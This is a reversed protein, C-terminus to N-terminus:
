KSRIYVKRAVGDWHVAYGFAEAVYRAPLFTCGNRIQPATDTPVIEGERRLWNEGEQDGMELIQVLLQALGPNAALAKIVESEAAEGLRFLEGMQKAIQGKLVFLEPKGIELFATTERGDHLVVQREEPVWVIYEEPVGLALALFRVPVMTRGNEDIYPAVDMQREQGDVLYSKQEVFFCRRRRRPSPLGPLQWFRVCSPLSLLWSDCPALAEREIYIYSEREELVEQINVKDAFHAM